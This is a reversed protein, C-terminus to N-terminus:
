RAGKMARAKTKRSAEAVIWDRFAFVRESPVRDARWVVWYAGEAPCTIGLLQVLTKKELEATAISRRALMVGHGDIATQLMVGMDQFDVGKDPRPLDVGAAACWMAWPEPDARLMPFRALDHPTKPPRSKVLSPSAVLLYEDELLPEAHLGPWRGSGFRIAVDVDERAFDVLTATSEINVEWDPHAAMFGVVRPMLWRSGFSPMVSITLRDARHRRRIAQAADSIQALAARVASALARGDATPVVGRGQRVFLPAGVFDELARVQHSVAGHTVHIEDGARSFSELRAAAEFARLAALPPLSSPM